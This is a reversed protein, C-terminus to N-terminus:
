GILQTTSGGDRRYGQGRHRAAAWTGRSPFTAPQVQAAKNKAILLTRNVHGKDERGPPGLLFERKEASGPLRHIIRGAFYAKVYDTFSSPWKALDMGYSADDSVYQVYLVTEDSFWYSIEDAYALHPNQLREDSFVGATAVWDDPKDFGYTFGWDPSISPNYDMRSSRMAFHWLGQEICYRVGEDNWVLDLLHRPEVEESVTQLAREGCLLLAGNYIRLRDTL